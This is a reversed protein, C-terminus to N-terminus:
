SSDLLTPLPRGTKSVKKEGPKTPPKSPYPVVAMLDGGSQRGKLLLLDALEYYLGRRAERMDGVEKLLVKVENALVRSFNDLYGALNFAVQERAAKKVEEVTNKHQNSGHEVTQDALKRLFAAEDDGFKKIADLVPQTGKNKEV